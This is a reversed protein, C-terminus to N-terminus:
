RFTLLGRMLFYGANWGRKITGFPHEVVQKRLRLKEPEKKVRKEMAELLHEEVWRKIRRGKKDTSCQERM